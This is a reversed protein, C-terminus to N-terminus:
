RGEKRIGVVVKAKLGGGEEVILHPGHVEGLLFGGTKVTVIGETYVRANFNGEIELDRCVIKRRLTFKGGSRIVLDRMRVNAIDFRAGPCLELRRCARIAGDKADGALIVDRAILEAGKLVGEAKLEVTGITKITKTWESDITHDTMDLFEHCKPCLPKHIRGQLTFTYGCEYCVIEHKAPIVTHGIRTAPKSRIKKKEKKEPKAEVAPLKSRSPRTRSGKSRRGARRVAQVSTFGDIVGVKGYDRM